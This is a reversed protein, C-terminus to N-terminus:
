RKEVYLFFAVFWGFFIIDCERRYVCRWTFIFWGNRYLTERILDGSRCIHERSITESRSFDRSILRPRCSVVISPFANPRAIQFVITLRSELWLRLLACVCPPERRRRRKEMRTEGRGEADTEKEKMSVKVRETTPVRARSLSARM